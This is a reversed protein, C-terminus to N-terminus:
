ATVGTMRTVDTTLLCPTKHVLESSTPTFKIRHYILIAVQRRLYFVPQLLRLALALPFCLGAVHDM